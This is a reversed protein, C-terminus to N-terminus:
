EEVEIADAYTHAVRKTEGTFRNVRLVITHSTRGYQNGNSKNMYVYEFPTPWVFVGFLLVAAAICSAVILGPRRM